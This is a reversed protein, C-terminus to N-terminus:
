GGCALDSGWCCDHSTQKNAVKRRGCGIMEVPEDWVWIWGPTNIVYTLLVNLEICMEIIAQPWVCLPQLSRELPFNLRCCDGVVHVRSM